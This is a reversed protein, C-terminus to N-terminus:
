EQDTYESQGLFSVVQVHEFTVHPSYELKLINAVWNQESPYVNMLIARTTRSNYFTTWPPSPHTHIHVGGGEMLATHSTLFNCSM